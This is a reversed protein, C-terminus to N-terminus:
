AIDDIKVIAFEEEEYAINNKDVKCIELYEKPYYAFVKTNANVYKECAENVTIKLGEDSYESKFVNYGLYVNVNSYIFEPKDPKDKIMYM